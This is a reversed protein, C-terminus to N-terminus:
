NLYDHDVADPDVCGFVVVELYSRCVSQVHHYCPEHSWHHHVDVNLLIDSISYWHHFVCDIVVLVEVIDNKAGFYIEIACFHNHFRRIVLHNWFIIVSPEGIHDLNFNFFVWDTIILFTRIPFNTIRLRWDPWLLYRIKPVRSPLSM